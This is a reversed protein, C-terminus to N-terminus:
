VEVLKSLTFRHACRCVFGVLDLANLPYDGSADGWEHVLEASLDPVVQLGPLGLDHRGMEVGVSPALVVLNHVEAVVVVVAAM